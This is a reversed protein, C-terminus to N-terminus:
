IPNSEKSALKALDIKPVFNEDSIRHKSLGSISDRAVNDSYEDRTTNIRHNKSSMDM